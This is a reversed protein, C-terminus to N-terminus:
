QEACGKDAVRPRFCRFAGAPAAVTANQAAPFIDEGDANGRADVRKGDARSDGARTRRGMRSRREGSFNEDRGYNDRSRSKEAHEGSKIGRSKESFERCLEESCEGSNDEDGEADLRKKFLLPVRHKKCFKRSLLRRFKSFLRLENRLVANGGVLFERM